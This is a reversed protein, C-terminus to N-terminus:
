DKPGNEAEVKLYVLTQSRVGFRLCAHGVANLANTAEVVGKYFTEQGAPSVSRMEVVFRM